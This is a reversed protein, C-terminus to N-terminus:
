PCGWISNYAACPKMLSSQGTTSQTVTTSGKLEQVILTLALLGGLTCVGLIIGDGLPMITYISRTMYSWPAYKQRLYILVAGIVAGILIGEWGGPQVKHWFDPPLTM